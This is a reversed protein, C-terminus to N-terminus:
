LVLIVCGGKSCWIKPYGGGEGERSVDNKFPGKNIYFVDMWIHLTGLPLKSISISNLKISQHDLRREIMVRCAVCRIMKGGTSKTWVTRAASLGNQLWRSGLFSSLTGFGLWYFTKASWIHWRTCIRQNLHPYTVNLQPGIVFIKVWHESSTTPWLASLPPQM